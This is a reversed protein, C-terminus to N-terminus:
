EVLYEVTIVSTPTAADCSLCRRSKPNKDCFKIDNKNTIEVVFAAMMTKAGFKSVMSNQTKLNTKLEDSCLRVWEQESSVGM